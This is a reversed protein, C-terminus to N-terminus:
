HRSLTKPRCPGIPWFGNGTARRDGSSTRNSRCSSQALLLFQGLLRRGSSTEVGLVLPTSSEASKSEAATHAHICPLGLRRVTFGQGGGGTVAARGVTANGAAISFVRLDPVSRIVSDLRQLFGPSRHGDAWRHMTEALGRKRGDASKVSPSGMTSCGASSSAPPSASRAPLPKWTPSVTCTRYNM